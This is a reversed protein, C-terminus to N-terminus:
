SVPKSGITVSLVQAARPLPAFKGFTLAMSASARLTFGVDPSPPRVPHRVRRFAPIAAHGDQTWEPPWRETAAGGPESNPSLWGREFRLSGAPEKEKPRHRKAGEDGRARHGRFSDGRELFNKAVLVAIENRVAEPFSERDGANQNGIGDVLLAVSGVPRFIRRQDIQLVVSAADQQERAVRPEKM